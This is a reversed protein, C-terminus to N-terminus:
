RRAPRHPAAPDHPLGPRRLGRGVGPPPPPGVAGRELAFTEGRDTSRFVAGPETGACVVGDEAGPVLQWVRALTADAARPSASRGRQADGALDRRPRRLAPGAPRALELSAGVLLRPRDGRTDVMCSYVEEMDFHPGTM